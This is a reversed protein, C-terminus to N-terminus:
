GAQAPPDAAVPDVFEVLSIGAEPTILVGPGDIDFEEGTPLKISVAEGCKENRALFVTCDKADSSFYRAWGYLQTGDKLVINANSGRTHLFSDAWANRWGKRSLKLWIMATRIVRKEDLLGAIIGVVIAILLAALLTMPNFGSSELTPTLGFREVQSVALLILYIPLDFLLAPLWAESVKRARSSALGDRIRLALFGPLLLAAIALTDAIVSDSPIFGFLMNGGNVAEGGTETQGLVPKQVEPM